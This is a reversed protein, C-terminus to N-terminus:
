NSSKENERGKKRQIDEVIMVTEIEKNYKTCWDYVFLDTVPIDAMNFREREFETIPRKDQFDICEDKKCGTKFFNCYTIEEGTVIQDM